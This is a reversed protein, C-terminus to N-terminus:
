FPWSGSRTEAGAWSTDAAAVRGPYSREAGVAGRRRAEEAVFLDQLYCIPREDWTDPHEFFHAIGVVSTGDHAALGEVPNQDDMLRLWLADTKAESPTTEYFVLYQHWLVRWRHHDGSELDRIVPETKEYHAM